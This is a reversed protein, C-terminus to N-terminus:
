GRGGRKRPRTRRARGRRSNACNGGRRAGRRRQRHGRRGQRRAGRSRHSSGDSGGGRGGGRGGRRVRREGRQRGGRWHRGREGGRTRHHRQQPALTKAASAAAIHERRRERQSHRGSRCLAGIQLAQRSIDHKVDNGEQRVRIQIREANRGFAQAGKSKRVKQHKLASELALERKVHRCHPFKHPFLIGDHQKSTSRQAQSFLHAVSSPIKRQMTRTKEKVKSLRRHHFLVNAICNISSWIPINVTEIRKRLSTHTRLARHKQQVIEHAIRIQSSSFCLNSKLISFANPPTEKRNKKQSETTLIPKKLILFQQNLRQRQKIQLIASQKFSQMKHKTM